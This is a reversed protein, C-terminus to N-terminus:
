KAVIVMAERLVRDKGITYGTQMEQVITGSEHDPDDIQQIVQHYNPDFHQGLSVIKEIGHKKLVDDLQKQTMEVGEIMNKLFIKDDTGNEMEKKACDLANALCDAVPLLDKAFSKNAYKANNEMDHALRKRLNDMEAATRLAKDKWEDREAMATELAVLDNEQRAPSPTEDDANLAADAPTEDFSELPTDMDENTEHQKMQDGTWPNKHHHKKSM